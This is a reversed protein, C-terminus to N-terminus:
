EALALEGRVAFDGDGYLYDPEFRAYACLRARDPVVVTGRQIDALERERLERVVRNMHVASIGVMKALHVQTLPTKMRGPEALGVQELRYDIECLLHATRRPADLAELSVIWERHIAADLLTSFWLLRALHPEQAVVAQLRDHPVRGVRAPGLTVLDHDLRKLAFAHLDAFDGPVQLAVISPEGDQEIRRLLFGEILMTSHSCLHGRQLITHGDELEVPDDVLDELLRKERDSMAQRLRGALFRGTNPYQQLETRDFTM